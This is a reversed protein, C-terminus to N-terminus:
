GDNKELDKETEKELRKLADICKNASVKGKRYEKVIKRSQAQWKEYCCKRNEYKKTNLSDNYYSVRQYYKKTVKTRYESVPDSKTAFRKRAGISSCKRDNTDNPSLNDCYIKNTRTPFFLHGCCECRRVLIDNRAIQILQMALFDRFSQIQYEIENGSLAEAFSAKLMEELRGRRAAREENSLSNNADLKKLRERILRVENKDYQINGQMDAFLDQEDIEGFISSYLLIADEQILCAKNGSVISSVMNNLFDIDRLIADFPDNRYFAGQIFQDVILRISRDRETGVGPLWSYIRSLGVSFNQINRESIDQGINDFCIKDLVYREAKTTLYPHLTALEEVATQFGRKTIPTSSLRNELESIRNHGYRLLRELGDTIDFPLEQYAIITTGRSKRDGEDQRVQGKYFPDSWSFMGNTFIIKGSYLNIKEADLTIM